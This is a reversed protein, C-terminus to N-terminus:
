VLVLCIFASSKVVVLFSQFIEFSCNANRSSDHGIFHEKGENECAKGLLHHRKFRSLFSLNFSYHCSAITTDLVTFNVSIALFVPDHDNM